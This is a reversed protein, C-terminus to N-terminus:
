TFYFLDSNKSSNHLYPMSHASIVADILVVMPSFRHSVAAVITM